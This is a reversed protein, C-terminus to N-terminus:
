VKCQCNTIKTYKKYFKPLTPFIKCQTKLIGDACQTRVGHFRSARMALATFKTLACLNALSFETPVRYFTM